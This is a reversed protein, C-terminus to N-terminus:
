SVKGPHKATGCLTEIMHSPKYHHTPPAGCGPELVLHKPIKVLEHKKEAMYRALERKMAVFASTTIVENPRKPLYLIEQESKVMREYFPPHDYFWDMSDVYGEKNAMWSFFRVFGDPDYGANWAYQIGLHDAQLEYQRSVGLLRLNVLLGLGDYGYQMAYQEAYYAGISSAGGTFVMGAVEAASMLINAIEAGKMKRESHRCVIHAIEHGMVGALEDENKVAGLLGRYVFLYGGGISFANITKSDLLYVHLPVHLDSHAAVRNAVRTVYRVLKPDKVLPPLVHQSFLQKTAEKGMHIDKYQGPVIVRQGIDQVNGWPSDHFTGAHIEHELNARDAPWYELLKLKARYNAYAIPLAHRAMVTARTRVARTNQIRCHLKHRRGSSIRATNRQLYKETSSITQNDGKAQDQFRKICQSRSQKLYQSMQQFQAQSFHQEGANEFIWMYSHHITRWIPVLNSPLPGKPEVPRGAAAPISFAVVIAAAALIRVWERCMRSM